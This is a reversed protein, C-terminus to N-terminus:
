PSTTQYVYDREETDNGEKDLIGTRVYMGTKTDFATKFSYKKDEMIYRM